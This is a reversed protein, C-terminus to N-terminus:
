RCAAWEEGTEREAAPDEPAAASPVQALDAETFICAQEMKLSIEREAAHDTSSLWREYGGAILFSRLVM